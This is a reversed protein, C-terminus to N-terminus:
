KQKRNLLDCIYYVIFYVSIGAGSLLASFQLIDLVSYNDFVKHRFGVVIFSWSVAIMILNVIKLIDSKIDCSIISLYLSLSIVMMTVGAIICGIVM